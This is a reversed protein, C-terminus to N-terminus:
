WLLQNQTLGFAYVLLKLSLRIKTKTQENKKKVHCSLSAVAVECVRIQISAYVISTRGTGFFTVACYNFAPVAEVTGRACSHGVVAHIHVHTIRM